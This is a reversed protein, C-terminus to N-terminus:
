LLFEKHKNATVQYTKLFQLTLFQLLSKPKDHTSSLASYRAQSTRRCYTYPFRCHHHFIFLTMVLM